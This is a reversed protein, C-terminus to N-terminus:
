CKYWISLKTSLLQRYKSDGGAYPAHISIIIRRYLRITLLFDGGAYPAHISIERAQFREVDSALTAGQM